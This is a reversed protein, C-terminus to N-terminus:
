NPAAGFIIAMRVQLMSLIAFGHAEQGEFQYGNQKTSKLM